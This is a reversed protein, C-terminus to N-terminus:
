VRNHKNIAIIIIKKGNNGNMIEGYYYPFCLTRKHGKLVSGDNIFVEMSYFSEKM